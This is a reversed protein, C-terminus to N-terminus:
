NETPTKEIHDVVLIEVPAKRQELRLGLQDQLARFFDPGYDPAALVPL